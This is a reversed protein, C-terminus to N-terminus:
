KTERKRKLVVSLVPLLLMVAALILIKRSWPGIKAGNDALVGLFFFQSAVALFGAFTVAAIGLTGKKVKRSQILMVIQAAAICYLPIVAFYYYNMVDDIPNIVKM